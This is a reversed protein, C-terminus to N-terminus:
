TRSARVKKARIRHRRTKAKGAYTRKKGPKRPM